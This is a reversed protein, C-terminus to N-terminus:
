GGDKDPPTPILNDLQLQNGLLANGALRKNGVQIRMRNLPLAFILKGFYNRGVKLGIMNMCIGDPPKSYLGGTLRCRCKIPRKGKQYYIFKIVKDKLLPFCVERIQEMTYTRKSM